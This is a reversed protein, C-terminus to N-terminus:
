REYLAGGVGSDCVAWAKTERAKPRRREVSRGPIGPKQTVKKSRATCWSGAPQTATMHWRTVTRRQQRRALSLRPCGTDINELSVECPESARTGVCRRARQRGAEVREGAHGDYPESGTQRAPRVPRSECGCSSAETNRSPSRVKREKRVLREQDCGGINEQISYNREQSRICAVRSTLSRSLFKARGGASALADKRSSRVELSCSGRLTRSNVDRLRAM